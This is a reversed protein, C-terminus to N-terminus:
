LNLGLGFSVSVKNETGNISINDFFYSAGAQSFFRSGPINYKFFVEPYVMFKNNDDAEIRISGQKHITKLGANLFFLFNAGESKLNYGAGLFLGTTTYDRDTFWLNFSTTLKLALNNGLLNPTLYLFGLQCDENGGTLVSLYMLYDPNPKVLKVIPKYKIVARNFGLVLNDGKKEIDISDVYKTIKEAIFINDTEIKSIVKYLVAENYGFVVGWEEIKSINKQLFSSDNKIFLDTKNDPLTNEQCYSLSSSLILCLFIILIILYKNLLFM